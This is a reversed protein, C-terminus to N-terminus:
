EDNKKKIYIFLCFFVIMLLIGVNHVLNYKYKPIIIIVSSIIFGIIMSYTLEYKRDILYILLNYFIIIGIISGLIFPFYTSINTILILPNTLVIIINDYIGLSLLFFSSSIGPFIKGFAFLIGGIFFSIKSNLFLRKSNLIHLLISFLFSLFLPIVKIGSKYQVKKILFPLESTIIGTLIYYLIIKFKFIYILFFSGIYIGCIVGIIVNIIFYLNHKIYEKNKFSDIFKEYIGFTVAVVSGSVGPLIACVGIIISKLFIVM